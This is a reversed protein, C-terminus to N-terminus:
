WGQFEERIDTLRLICPKGTEYFAASSYKYEAPHKALGWHEQLPNDHLYHLKQFAKYPYDLLVALSDRRWIRVDRGSEWVGFEDVVEKGQFTLGQKLKHATFKLFSAHPMERGNPDIMSWIFHVHNPMIVYAYVEIKGKDILWSLSEIILDRNEDPELLKKWKHITATWFYVKGYEM